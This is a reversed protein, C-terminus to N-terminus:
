NGTELEGMDLDITKIVNQGRYAYHREVTLGRSQLQKLLSGEGLMHGVGAVALGNGGETVFPALRAAWAENRRVFLADYYNPAKAKLPEMLEANIWGTNGAAWASNLRRTQSALSDIEDLTKILEAKQLREPLITSASLHEDITELYQIYKGQATAMDHIAADAGNGGTLGAQELAALALTDAALWPRYSDLAGDEFGANLVAAFLRTRNYGDLQDPLSESGSYFGDRARIVEARLLSAEDHSTEFFVTGAGSLIERLDDRQWDLDKPLIHVSGYLFLTGAGDVDPASVKWIAPGDNRARAAEVKAVVGPDNRCGMLLLLCAVLLTLYRIM